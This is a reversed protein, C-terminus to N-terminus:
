YQYVRIIFEFYITQPLSRIFSSLTHTSISPYPHQSVILSPNPLVSFVTKRITSKTTTATAPEVVTVALFFPPLNFNISVKFIM